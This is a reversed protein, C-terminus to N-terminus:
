QGEGRNDQEPAPPPAVPANIVGPIVVRHGGVFDRPGAVDALARGPVFAVVRAVGSPGSWGTAGVRQDPAEVTTGGPGGDAQARILAIMQERELAAQERELAAHTAVLAAQKQNLQDQLLAIRPDDRRRCIVVLVLGVSALVAIVGVFLGPWTHRPSAFFRGFFLGASLTLCAGGVPRGETWSRLNGAAQVVQGAVWTRGIGRGLALGLSRFPRGIRRLLGLV